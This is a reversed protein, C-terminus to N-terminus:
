KKFRQIWSNIHTVKERKLTHTFYKRCMLIDTDMSRLLPLVSSASYFFYFTFVKKFQEQVISLNKEKWNLNYFFFWSYKEDSQHSHQVTRLSTQKMLILVSHRNELTMYKRLFEFKLLYFTENFRVHAQNPPTKFWLSTWLQIISQKQKPLIYSANVFLSYPNGGLHEKVWLVISVEVSARRTPCGGFTNEPIGASAQLEIGTPLTRYARKSITTWCSLQPVGFQIYSVLRWHVVSCHGPYNQESCYEM